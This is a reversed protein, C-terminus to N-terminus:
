KEEEADRDQQAAQEPTLGGEVVVLRMAQAASAAAVAPADAAEVELHVLREAGDGTEAERLSHVRAEVAGPGGEEGEAAGTLVVWVPTGMGATEPVAAEPLAAAVVAQGWGPWDQESLASQPVPTGTQLPVVTRRGVVQAAGDGAFESQPLGTAEVLRLDDEGIVHGVPLDRAAVAVQGRETAAMAGWVALLAGLAVMGAGAAGWKWSRSM